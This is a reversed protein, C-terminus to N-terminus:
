RVWSHRVQCASQLNICQQSLKLECKIYKKPPLISPPSTEGGKRRIERLNRKEGVPFNVISVTSRIPTGVMKINLNRKEQKKNTPEAIKKLEMELDQNRRTTKFISGVVNKLEIWYWISYTVFLYPQNLHLLQFNPYTLFPTLPSGYCLFHRSEESKINNGLRRFKLNKGM